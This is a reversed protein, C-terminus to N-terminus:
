EGDNDTNEQEEARMQAVTEATAVWSQLTQVIGNLAVNTNYAEEREKVQDPTTTFFANQLENAFDKLVFGFADSQLLFAAMRGREMIKEETM